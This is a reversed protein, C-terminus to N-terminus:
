HESKLVMLQKSSKKQRQENSFHKYIDINILIACFNETDNTALTASRTFADNKRRGQDFSKPEVWM